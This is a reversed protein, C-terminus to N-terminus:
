KIFFSYRNKKKKFFFNVKQQLKYFYDSTDNLTNTSLPLSIKTYKINDKKIEEFSLGFKKSFHSGTVVLEVNFMKHKLFVKLFPYILGYEARNASFFIINIKKM